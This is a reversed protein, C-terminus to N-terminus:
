CCIKQSGFVCVCLGLVWHSLLSIQLETRNLNLNNFVSFSFEIYFSVKERMNDVKKEQGNMQQSIINNKIFKVNKALFLGM